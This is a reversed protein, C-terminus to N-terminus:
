LEYFCENLYIQPYLKQNAQLVLNVNVTLTLFKLSKKLPLDEETNISVKCYSKEDFVKEVMLERLIQSLKQGSVKMNEQQILFQINIM